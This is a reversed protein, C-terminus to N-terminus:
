DGEMGWPDQTAQVMEYIDLIAQRALYAATEYSSVVGSIYLNKTGKGVWRAYWYYCPENFCKEVHCFMRPDGRQKWTRARWKLKRRLRKEAAQKIERLTKYIRQQRSRRGPIKRKLAIGHWGREESNYDAWVWTKGDPGIGEVSIARWGAFTM